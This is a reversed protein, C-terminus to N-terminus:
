NALHARELMFCNTVCDRIARDEFPLIDPLVNYVFKLTGLKPEECFVRAHSDSEKRYGEKYNQQVSQIYAKVIHYISGSDLDQLQKM